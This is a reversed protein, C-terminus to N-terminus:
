SEAEGEFLLVLEAAQLATVQENYDSGARIEYTGAVHGTFQFPSFAAPEDGWWSVMYLRNNEAQPYAEAATLIQPTGNIWNATKLNDLKSM